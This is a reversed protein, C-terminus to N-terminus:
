PVKCEKDSDRLLCRFSHESTTWYLYPLHTFTTNKGVLSIMGWLYSVVRLAGVTNDRIDCMDRTVEGASIGIM